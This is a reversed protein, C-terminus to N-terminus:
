AIDPSSTTMFAEPGTGESQLYPIQPGSYCLSKGLTMHNFFVLLGELETEVM